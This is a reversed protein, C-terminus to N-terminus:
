QITAGRASKSKNSVQRPEIRTSTSSATHPTTEVVLRLIHIVAENPPKAEHEHM